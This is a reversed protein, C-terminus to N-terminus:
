RKTAVEWIKILEDEVPHRKLKVMIYQETKSLIEMRALKYIYGGRDANIYQCRITYWIKGEDDDPYTKFIVEPFAGLFIDESKDDGYESNISKKIFCQAADLTKYCETNPGVDKMMAKLGKRIENPKMVIKREHPYLTFLM